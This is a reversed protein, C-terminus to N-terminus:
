IGCVKPSMSQQQLKELYDKAVKTDYLITYNPPVFSPHVNPHFPTPGPPFMGGTQPLQHYNLMHSPQLYLNQNLYYQHSVTSFALQNANLPKVEFNAGAASATNALTPGLSSDPRCKEELPNVLGQQDSMGHTFSFAFQKM